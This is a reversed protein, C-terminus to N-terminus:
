AVAIAEMMNAVVTTTATTVTATVKGHLRVVRVPAVATTMDLTAVNAIRVTHGNYNTVPHAVAIGVMGAVAATTTIMMVVAMRKTSPSHASRLASKPRPQQRTSQPHRLSAQIRASANRAIHINGSTATAEVATVETGSVDATTTTIMAIAMAWMRLLAV